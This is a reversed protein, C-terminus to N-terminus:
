TLDIENVVKKPHPHASQINPRRGRSTVTFGLKQRHYTVSGRQKGLYDAIRQDSDTRWHTRLYLVERDTWKM